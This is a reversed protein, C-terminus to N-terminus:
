VECAISSTRVHVCRASPEAQGCQVGAGGPQPGTDARAKQGKGVGGALCQRETAQQAQRQELHRDAHGGHQQDARQVPDHDDLHAHGGPQDGRHHRQRQQERGEARQESV